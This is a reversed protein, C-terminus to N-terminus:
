MSLQHATLVLDPILILKVKHGEGDDMPQVDEGALVVTVYEQIADPITLLMFAKFYTCIANHATMNM